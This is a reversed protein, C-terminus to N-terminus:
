KKKARSVYSPLTGKEIKKKNETAADIQWITKGNVYVDYGEVSKPNFSSYKKLAHWVQEATLNPRDGLIKDVAKQIGLRYKSQQGGKRAIKVLHEKVEEATGSLSDEIRKFMDLNVKWIAEIHEAIIYPYLKRIKKENAKHWNLFSRRKVSIDCLITPFDVPLAPNAPVCEIEGKALANRFFYWLVKKSINYSKRAAEAKTGAYAIYVMGLPLSIIHYLQGIEWTKRKKLYLAYDKPKIVL